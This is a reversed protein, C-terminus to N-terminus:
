RFLMGRGVPTVKMGFTRIQGPSGGGGGDGSSPSFSDVWGRRSDRAFETLRAM